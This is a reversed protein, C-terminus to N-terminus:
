PAILDRAGEGASDEASSASTERTRPLSFSFTSGKGMSSEAWIKGGHQEVIGKSIVLGLGTGGAKRTTSSDLQAFRQFLRSMDRQTIGKGHDRVDVIVESETGRVWVEIKSKEPSFKIANGLLNTIVQAVRMPDAEIVGASGEVHVDIAVGKMAALNRIHDVAEPVIKGVAVSEFNLSLKSSELKSFDLIDNILSILREANAQCISLLERQPPPLVHFREDGLLELSGKISTLPTRVEHSVVAVFESKMRDLEKTREYLIANTVAISAQSAFMTLVEQDDPTFARGGWNLATITGFVAENSRLPVVLVSSVELESLFPEVGVTQGVNACRVPSANRVAQGHLGVGIGFRFDRLREQPVGAGAGAGAEAVYEGAETDYLFVLSSEANALRSVQNVIVALTAQRNLSTSIEKGAEYLSTIRRTAEKVLRSLIEEHRQLEDNAEELITVLRRNEIVLFRSELGREIAKATEWLDFPKTIYDYAGQRLADIATTTSAYGTILIVCTDKDAAKAARVVELGDVGPLNIDTLVLDFRGATVKVIADDGDTSSVVEYGRQALLDQFIQVVHPEDDVVLIRPQPRPEEALGSERPRVRSAAPSEAPADAPVPAAKGESQPPNQTMARTEAVETSRTRKRM